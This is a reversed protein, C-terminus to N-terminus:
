YSSDISIDRAAVTELQYAAELACANPKLIHSDIPHENPPCIRIAMTMTSLPRAPALYWM